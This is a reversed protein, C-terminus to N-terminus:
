GYSAPPALFKKSHMRTFLFLSVLIALNLRIVEATTPSLKMIVLLMFSYFLLIYIMLWNTKHALYNKYYISAAILYLPWVGQMALREFNNGTLHYALFPQGITIAAYLLLYWNKFYFLILDKIIFLALPLIPIILTLLGSDQIIFLINEWTFFYEAPTISMLLAGEAHYYKVLLTYALAALGMYIFNIIKKHIILSYILCLEGMFFLNQRTVIGLLTLIFVWHPSKKYYTFYFMFLLIPYTLADTSQYINVLAQIMAHHSAMTIFTVSLAFLKTKANSAVILKTLVYYFGISFLLYSLGSLLKFSNEISLGFLSVLTKVILAPLIRMAHHPAIAPSYSISDVMQIYANCDWNAPCDGQSPALFIYGLCVMAIIFINVAHNYSYKKYLDTLLVM